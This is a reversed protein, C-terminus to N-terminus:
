DQRIRKEQDDVFFHYEAIYPHLWGSQQLVWFLGEEMKLEPKSLLVVYSNLPYECKVQLRIELDWTSERKVALISIDAPNLALAYRAEKNGFRYDELPWSIQKKFEVKEKHNTELNEFFSELVNRVRVSGLAFDSAFTRKGNPPRKFVMRLTEKSAEPYFPYAIAGMIVNLGYIGLKDRLSFASLSNQDRPKAALQAIRNNLENVSIEFTSISLFIMLGFLILRTKIYLRDKIKLPLFLIVALLLLFCLCYWHFCLAWLFISLFVFWLAILITRITLTVTKSITKAWM